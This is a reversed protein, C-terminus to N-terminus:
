SDNKVENGGIAENKHGGVSDVHREGQNMSHRWMDNLM